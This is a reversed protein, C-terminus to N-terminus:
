EVRELRSMRCREAYPESELVGCGDEDLIIILFARRATSLSSAQGVV